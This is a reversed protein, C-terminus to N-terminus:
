FKGAVGACIKMPTSVPILTGYQISTKLTFTVTFTLKAADSPNGASAPPDSTQISLDALRYLEHGDADYRIWDGGSQKLGLRNALTDTVASTDADSVWGTGTHTYASGAMDTEGAYLTNENQAVANEAAARVANYVGNDLTHVRWYNWTGALMLLVALLWAAALPLMNGQRSLLTRRLKKMANM